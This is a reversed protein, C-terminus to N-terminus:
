IGPPQRAPAPSERAIWDIKPQALDPRDIELMAQAYGYAWGAMLATQADGLALSADRLRRFDADLTESGSPETAPTDPQPM